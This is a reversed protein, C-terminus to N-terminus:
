FHYLHANNWDRGGDGCAGRHTTEEKRRKRHCKDNSKSSVRIWSSNMEYDRSEHCGCLSKELYSWMWLNWNSMGKPLLPCRDISIAPGRAWFKCTWCTALHHQHKQHLFCVNLVMAKPLFEVDSHSATRINLLHWIDGSFLAFFSPLSEQGLREDKGAEDTGTRGGWHGWILRWSAALGVICFLPLPLLESSLWVQRQMKGFQSYPRVM